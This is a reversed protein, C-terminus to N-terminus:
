AFYGSEPYRVGNIEYAFTLKANLSNSVSCYKDLSLHIAREVNAPKMEGTLRFTLAIETFRRPETEARIGDVETAFSDVTERMKELIMVIDIGSCGALGMLVMETPKIGKGEGGAEVSADMVASYGSEGMASFKRKGEWNVTVKM